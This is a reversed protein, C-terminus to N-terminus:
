ASTPSPIIIIANAIVLKTIPAIYIFVKRFINKIEAIRKERNEVFKTKAFLAQSKICPLAPSELTQSLDLVSRFVLARFMM